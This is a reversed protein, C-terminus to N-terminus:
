CTHQPHHAVLFTSLIVLLKDNPWVIKVNEFNLFFTESISRLVHEICIQLAIPDEPLIRQMKYSNELYKKYSDKHSHGVIISSIVTM